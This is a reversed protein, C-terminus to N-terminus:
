YARAFLVRQKSPKGTLICKGEEEKLDYKPTRFRYVEKGSKYMAVQRWSTIEEAFVTVLSKGDHTKDLQYMCENTIDTITKEKKM